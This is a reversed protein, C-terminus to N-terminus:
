GDTSNASYIGDDAVDDDTLMAVAISGEEEKCRIVDVASMVSRRFVVFGM